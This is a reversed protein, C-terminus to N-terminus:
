IGLLKKLEAVQANSLSVHKGAALKAVLEDSVVPKAPETAVGRLKNRQERALNRLHKVRNLLTREAESLEDEVVDSMNKSIFSSLNNYLNYAVTADTIALVEDDTWEYCKKGNVLKRQRTSSGCKSDRLEHLYQNFMDIMDDANRTRSNECSRYARRCVKDQCNKILQRIVPAEDGQYMKDACDKILNAITGDELAAKFAATGTYEVGYVASLTGISLENTIKQM